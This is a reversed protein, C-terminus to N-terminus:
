DGKKDSKAIIAWPIIVVYAITLLIPAYTISLPSDYVPGIKPDQGQALLIFGVLVTAVGLGLLVFNKKTFLKDGQQTM